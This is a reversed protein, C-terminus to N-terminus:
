NSGWGEKLLRAVVEKKTEQRTQEQKYVDIYKILKKYDAISYPKGNKLGSVEIQGNINTKVIYNKQKM